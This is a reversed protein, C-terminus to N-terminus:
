SPQTVLVATCQGHTGITMQAILVALRHARRLPKTLPPNTPQLSTSELHFSHRIVSGTSYSCSASLSTKWGEVVLIIKSYSTGLPSM